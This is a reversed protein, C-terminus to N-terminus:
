ADAKETQRECWQVWLKRYLKAVEEGYGKYDMLWSQQMRERLGESLAIIRDPNLALDVAKEIYEEETAAVCHRELGLAILQGSPMRGMPPRSQLTVVLREMFLGETATTISGSPFTDLQIDIKQYGPWHPRTNRFVLRESAIGHEEFYGTMRDQVDAEAYPVHDFCLISNPVRKLIEAWTKVTRRNTRLPRTLVGFTVFGNDIVPLPVPKPADEAPKFPFGAKPLRVVTEAMYAEHEVPVSVADTICADIQPLGTTQGAGFLWTAQVPAPRRVFVNLRNNATHGALDVLIDIQDHRIRRELEDNSMGNIEIWHDSYEKYRKTYEDMQNPEFHAYLFYEYNVRDHNSLVPESFYAVAHQRFDPSIYGIRLRRKLEKNNKHAKIPPILFTINKEYWNKYYGWIEKPTYYPHCNLNFFISNLNDYKKDGRHYSIAQMETEFEDFYGSHVHISLRQERYKISTPQLYIAKDIEEIALNINWSVRYIESKEAHVQPIRGFLEEIKNLIQIKRNKINMEKAAFFAAWWPHINTPEKLRWKNLLEELLDTMKLRVLSKISAELWTLPPFKETVVNWIAREAPEDRRRNEIKARLIWLELVNPANELAKDLIRRADDLAGQEVLLSAMASSLSPQDGVRKILQHVVTAADSMRDATALAMVYRRAVDLNTPEQSSLETLLALEEDYRSAKKLASAYMIRFLLENPNRKIQMQLLTLADDYQHARNLAGVLLSIHAPLPESDALSRATCVAEDFRELALLMGVKQRVLALRRPERNLGNELAALAENARQQQYLVEALLGHHRMNSPDNEVLVHAFNAADSQRGRGTYFRVLAQGGKNPNCVNAIKLCGECAEFNAKDRYIDACMLWYETTDVGLVIWKQLLELVEDVDGTSRLQAILAERLPLKPQAHQLGDELVRIAQLTGDRRRAINHASIWSKPNRPDSKVAKTIYEWAREDDSSSYAIQAMGRLAVANTPNSKLTTTFIDEAEKVNQRDVLTLAYNLRVAETSQDSVKRWVRIAEDTEGTDRLIVALNNHTDVDGPAIELVREYMSRAHDYKDLMQYVAGASRLADADNSFRESLGDAAMLLKTRRIGGRMRMLDLAAAARRPTDFGERAKSLIEAAWNFDRSGIAAEVAHFVPADLWPKLEIAANTDTKAKLKDNLAAYLRARNFLAEPQRPQQSLGTEYLQLVRGTVSRDDSRIRDWQDYQIVFALMAPWEWDMPYRTALAELRGKAREGRNLVLDRRALVKQVRPSDDDEFPRLLTVAEQIRGQRIRSWARQFQARRPWPDPALMLRDLAADCASWQERERCVIATIYNSEAINSQGALIRTFESADDYYACTVLEEAVEVLEAPHATFPMKVSSLLVKNADIGRKLARLARSRWLVASLAHRPDDNKEAVDILAQWEGDHALTM